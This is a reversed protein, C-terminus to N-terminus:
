KPAADIVDGFLEWSEGKFRMLQLQEIPYYDTPSTNVKIGPLLVGSTFDKINAAQKMINERTLDDGAQKLVHAMLQAAFYGYINLTNAKDGGPYYKDMFDSWEKIAPDDKWRPDNPDKQWASSMIGQANEFGAPKMVSAISSAPNTLFFTPKWNLEAVKRITQAAAKPTVLAVLLDAGSAKLAVVHSDITPDTIEYPKEIVINAVKDGLAEKLGAFADRASDDNQWLVAIKSNPYNARIYKGYAVGESKYTPNLGMTWPFKEPDGFKSAGTAVFLQPVKANNMYKQTASNSATGLAQFILLVDDSEVLKRTQEVAKPPSYADDYSIFKVKRGNIGGQANIMDFYAAQVKGITGYASAPGSYPMINGIKIETDSAGKDYKKQALAPTSAIMGILAASSLASSWKRM